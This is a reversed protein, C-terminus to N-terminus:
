AYWKPLNKFAEVTGNYEPLYLEIIECLIKDATRHAEEEDRQFEEERFLKVISDSHTLLEKRLKTPADM